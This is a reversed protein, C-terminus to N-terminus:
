WLVVSHMECVQMVCQRGHAEMPLVDWLYPMSFACAVAQHSSLSGSTGAESLGAPAGRKMACIRSEVAQAREAFGAISYQDQLRHSAVKQPVSVLLCDPEHSHTPMYMLGAKKV